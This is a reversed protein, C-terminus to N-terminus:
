PKIARLAATKAARRANQRMNCLERNNAWWRNSHALRCANCWSQLKLPGGDRGNNAHFNSAPMVVKCQSCWKSLPPLERFSDGPMYHHRTNCSRCVLGYTGDRYHQLSAVTRSGDKAFWPMFQKCDACLMEPDVVAELEAYSPVTKNSLLAQTRMRMFRYHMDCMTSTGRRTGDAGCRNCKIKRGDNM